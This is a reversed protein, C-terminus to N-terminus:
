LTLSLYYLARYRSAESLTSYKHYHKRLEIKKEEPLEWTIRVKNQWKKEGLYEEEVTGIHVMSICWAVHNGQPAPDYNAGGGNNTAIITAM